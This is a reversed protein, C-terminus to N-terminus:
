SLSFSLSLFFSSSRNQPTLEKEKKKRGKRGRKKKKGLYGERGPGVGEAELFEKRRKLRYGLRPRVVLKLRVVGV